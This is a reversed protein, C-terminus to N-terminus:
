GDTVEGQEHEDASDRLFFPLRKSFDVPLSRRVEAMVEADVTTYGRARAFDEVRRTVVGRVFSPVRSIRERAEPTWPLEPDVSRGYTVAPRPQVLPRDGPPDYACSEDPGLPDGAAAFARARCGGCVKRYECQGCRGGLAGERLARFLTSTSWVDSFSEELLDGAVATMYPCPTLKGEPTIRCYHVGCPCRTGYNLLPSDDDAELVHRMIQPQCKSRVMMRGRYSRELEVLDRLVEENEAPSLGQMREGRGTAVLFYLNFSVAGRAAAWAVLEPLEARNGATLSTQVIFDLQHEVLRDVASLTGALAGEGHRFRDHYRPDLSDVSVAVGRVGSAKLSEIRADTLGIGNTGVVVTAGSSSAHEAIEELDERVLPEGGSLILLPSPNVSLLDNLVRHCEATSLEGGSGHWSGASIYCHSCALNCRRTINWAVVHPLFSEKENRGPDGG